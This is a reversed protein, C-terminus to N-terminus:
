VATPLEITAKETAIEFLEESLQCNRRVDDNMDDRTLIIVGTTNKTSLFLSKIDKFEHIDSVTINPTKRVFASKTAFDNIGIHDKGITFLQIKDYEQQLSQLISHLVVHEEFNRTDAGTVLLELQKM